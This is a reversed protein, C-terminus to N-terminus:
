WAGIRPLEGGETTLGEGAGRGTLWWGLDAAAGSVRPGGEGFTWTGDLDTAHATFSGEIPRAGALSDLLYATFAAPWDSHAYGAALDAHHIEVERLRMDPVSAVPFTRGGPTREVSGTWADDPVAAIADSLTTCAALLRSRLETPSQGALEEIDGDRAEQSAYMAVPRGEVLGALVGALAEANLALHALVHARTWGPLLSPGAYAADDLEDTTRILRRTAEPLLDDAPSPPGAHTLDAM